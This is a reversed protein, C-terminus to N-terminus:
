LMAEAPVVVTDTSNQIASADGLAVKQNMEEPLREM